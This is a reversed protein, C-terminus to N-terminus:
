YYRGRKEKKKGRPITVYTAYSDTQEKKAYLERAQAIRKPPLKVIDDKEYSDHHMIQLISLGRIVYRWTMARLDHNTAKVNKGSAFWVDRADMEAATATKPDLGALRVVRVAVRQRDLRVSYGKTSWERQKLPGKPTYSMGGGDPHYGLVEPYLLHRPYSEYTFVTTALQFDAATAPRKHLPPAEAHNLLDILSAERAANWADWRAQPIADIVSQLDTKTLTQDVPMGEIMDAVEKLDALDGAGPMFCRELQSKGLIREEYVQRLMKYRERLVVHREQALRKDRLEPLLELLPGRISEWEEETLPQTKNVFKHGDLQDRTVIKRVEDAWGLDGLRRLIEDIRELRIKRKEEERRKQREREWNECLETHRQSKKLNEEWNALWVKKFEKTKRSTDREYRDALDDYWARSYLKDNGCNECYRERSGWVILANKEPLQGCSQCFEDTVLAVFRPVSVGSPPPPLAPNTNKYSKKWIKFSSRNLLFNRLFKTTRALQLLSPADLYGLIELILELPIDTLSSTQVLEDQVVAPDSEQERVTSIEKKARKRPPLDVAAPSKDKPARNLAQVRVRLTRKPEQKWKVGVAKWTMVFLGDQRNPLDRAYAYWPDRREMDQLTAKAPDLGALSVLREALRLRSVEVCFETASWANQGVVDKPDHIVDDSDDVAPRYKLAKPYWVPQRTDKKTFALAFLKLDTITAKHARKKDKKNLMSVLADECVKRWTSFRTPAIEKIRAEIENSLLKQEIPIGEILDTVEEFTVLDGVGPLTSREPTGKLFLRYVRRLMDYREAFVRSCDEEFFQKNVKKVFRLLPARIQVWEECTLPQAKDVLAHECFERSPTVRNVEEQWGDQNLRDIIAKLREKKIKAIEALRKRLTADEWMECRWAHERIKSHERARKELWKKKDEMLKRRNDHEFQAVLEDVAAHPYSHVRPFEWDAYFGPFLAALPYDRGFYRHVDRVIKISRMEREHVVHEYKSLCMRCCRMRATWIRKVLSRGDYTDKPLLKHCCDCIDDVIFGVFKPITLDDPALPLGHDTTAYSNKWLWSSSREFLVDLPLENVPFAHGQLRPGSDDGENLDRPMPKQRKRPRANVPKSEANPQPNSSKDALLTPSTSARPQRSNGKKTLGPLTLRGRFNRMRPDRRLERALAADRESILLVSDVGSWSHGMANRWMMVHLGEKRKPLDCARAFWPDRKDMDEPTAKTKDLGALAVLHEVFRVQDLQVCVDKPSWACQRVIAQPDEFDLEEPSGREDLVDPYWLARQHGEEAFITTVLKLDDTTAPRTRTTDTANLTDVLATECGARWEPFRTKSLEDVLTSMNDYTVEQEVPTGEILNFMEKFTVVDGIGPLLSKQRRSKGHLFNRYVQELTRYRDHIILRQKREIRRAKQGEVFAILKDRNRSWEQETLPQVKDVFAHRQFDSWNEWKQAEEDLGVEKLRDLIDKQRGVRVAEDREWQEHEREREWAKCVKVHKRIEEHEAVKQTIWAKKVEVPKGRTARGFEKYLSEITVRPYWHHREDAEAYAPFLTHLAFEARRGFLRDIVRAMKVDDYMDVERVFYKKMYMCKSCCRLRAAWIRVIKTNGQPSRHCFDCFSDIALAVFKPITLDRPVQPLGHKTNAYSKKWMKESSRSMLTHYTGRSSHSLHLLSIPDLYGLIELLIDLPIVMLPSHSFQENTSLATEARTRQRKRAQPNAAELVDDNVRCCMVNVSEERSVLSLGRSMCFEYLAYLDAVGGLLRAKELKPVLVSRDHEHVVLAQLFKTSALKTLQLERLNIASYLCELICRCGYSAVRLRQLHKATTPTRRLFRLLSKISRRPVYEVALYEIVPASVMNLLHGADKHLFLHKLVPFTALIDLPNSASCVSLELTILTARCGGLAEALTSMDNDVLDLRLSTLNPLPPLSFSFTPTEGYCVISLCRLRPADSLFHLSLHQDDEDPWEVRLEVYYLLPTALPTLKKLTRYDASVSLTAWRSAYPSMAELFMPLRESSWCDLQLPRNGSRPIYRDMYAVLHQPKPAEYYTWLYPEAHAVARWFKCVLPIVREFALMPDDVDPVPMDLYSLLHLWFIESLLEVPISDIPAAASPIASETHRLAIDSSAEIDEHRVDFSTATADSPVETANSKPSTAYGFSVVVCVQLWLVACHRPRHAYSVLLTVIVLDSKGTSKRRAPGYVVVSTQARRAGKFGVDSLQLVTLDMGGDLQGLEGSRSAEIKLVQCEECHEVVRRVIYNVLHGRTGAQIHMRCRCSKLRASGPIAPHGQGRTCAPRQQDPGDFSRGEADGSDASCALLMRQMNIVFTPSATSQLVAQGQLRLIPSKIPSISAHPLRIAFPRQTDPDRGTCFGMLRGVCSAPQPASGYVVILFWRFPLHRSSLLISWSPLSSPFKICKQADNKALRCRMDQVRTGRVVQPRARSECLDRLAYLDKVGGLFSALRLQPVLVSKDRGYVTLARLLKGPTQGMICLEELNKAMSLCKVFNDCNGFTGIELHWLRGATTPSRILFNLLADPTDPPLSEVSLFELTPASIMSLSPAANETLVLTELAPFVVPAHSPTAAPQSTLVFLRLIKLTACCGGLSGALTTLDYAAADLRLTTLNPLPPLSFSFPPGQGDCDISLIRLRPADEFVRLSLHQGVVNPWEVCILVHDLIPTAVPTLEEFTRCTGGLALTTWRAAYPAMAAFFAPTRESSKCNLHLPRDGSRPLYCDMFAPLHEPAPAKYLTWLYPEAHALARWSKCVLPVVREFASMPNTVDPRGLYSKLHLWFIESLLEAPLNNIPTTARASTASEKHLLALNNEHPADSGTATADNPM